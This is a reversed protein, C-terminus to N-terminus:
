NLRFSTDSEVTIGVRGWTSIASVQATRGQIKSLDLRHWKIIFGTADKVGKSFIGEINAVEMTLRDASLNPKKNVMRSVCVDAKFTKLIQIIDFSDDARAIVFFTIVTETDPASEYPINESTVILDFRDGANLVFPINEPAPMKM